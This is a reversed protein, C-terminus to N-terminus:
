STQGTLILMGSRSMSSRPRTTSCSRGFASDAARRAAWHTRASGFRRPAACFAELTTPCTTPSRAIRPTGPSPAPVLARSTGVGGVSDKRCHHARSLPVLSHAGGPVLDEGADPVRGRVDGAWRLLGSTRRDVVLRPRGRRLHEVEEHLP